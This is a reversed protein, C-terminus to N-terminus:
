AAEMGLRAIRRGINETRKKIEDDAYRDHGERYGALAAWSENASWDQQGLEQFTPDTAVDALARFEDPDMELYAM